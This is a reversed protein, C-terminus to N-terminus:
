NKRKLEIISNLNKDYVCYVDVGKINIWILTKPIVQERQKAVNIWRYDFHIALVSILFFTGIILVLVANLKDNIKTEM